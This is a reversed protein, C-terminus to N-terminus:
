PRRGNFWLGAWQHQFGSLEPLGFSITLSERRGREPAAADSRVALTSSRRAPDAIRSIVDAPYAHPEVGLLECSEILSAVVGL